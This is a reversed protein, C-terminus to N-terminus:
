AIKAVSGVFVFPLIHKEIFFSKDRLSFYVNDIKKRM